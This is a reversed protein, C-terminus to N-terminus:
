EETDQLPDREGMYAPEAEPVAPENSALVPTSAPLQKDSATSAAPEDDDDDEEKILTSHLKNWM